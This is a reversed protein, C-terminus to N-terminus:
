PPVFGVLLCLQAFNDKSSAPVSRLDILRLLDALRKRCEAYNKLKSNLPSFAYCVDIMFKVENPTFNRVMSIYYPWAANSVGYRNGVAVYCLKQVFFEQVAEPVATQRVIEALREAFAPENYFNNMGEHASVLLDVARSVMAQQQADSLFRVLGVKQFFDISAQLRAQDGAVMYKNHQEVIKARGVVSLDGFFRAALDLSNLRPEQGKGPDCYIGHLMSALTDRQGTNGASIMDCLDTLHRGSIRGGNVAGLLGKIDIGVIQIPNAIAYKICNSLFFNFQHEDVLGDSPHAVSFDNRIARCQDLFTYGETSILGLGNCLRLLESDQLQLLQVEEFDAGKISAVTSLGFDRVKQRLSAVTENWAYNLAADFLGIKVAACMRALPAGRRDSPIRALLRPLGAWVVEISEAEAFVDRPLSLATALASVVAEVDSHATPLVIPKLAVDTAIKQVAM